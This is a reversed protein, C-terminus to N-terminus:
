IGFIRIFAIRIRISQCSVTTGNDYVWMMTLENWATDELTKVRSIKPDTPNQYMICKCPSSLSLAFLPLLIWWETGGRMKVFDLMFHVSHGWILLFMKRVRLQLELLGSWCMLGKFTKGFSESPLLAYNLVLQGKPLYSKISKLFSIYFFGLFKM